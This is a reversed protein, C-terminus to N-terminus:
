EFKAVSWNEMNANLVTVPPLQVMAPVPAVVVEGVKTYRKIVFPLGHSFWANPQDNLQFHLHPETSNGSNGLRAIPQGETVLDGVAVLFSNPRCHMYAAYCGGGIDLILHNGAYEDGTNLPVDRSDGSNEIRGDVVKIVRGAAVALLTKGYAFYSENKKPDGVFTQDWRENAQTLDFAYKESTWIEGGIFAAYWFHYGLTSQNFFLWYNGTVPSAIVRPSEGKRPRLPGGVLTREARRAADYFVFRHAINSPVVHTLPIPVQISLYYKDIQDIQVEPSQPLPGKWIVPLDAQEITLLDAKTDSDFVVIRRLELGEKEFEWTKLMYGIRLYKETKFPVDNQAVQILDPFESLTRDKSSCGTLWLALLVMVIMAWSFWNLQTTASVASNFLASAPASGHAQDASRSAERDTAPPIDLSSRVVM